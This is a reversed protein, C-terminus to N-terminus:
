SLRSSTVDELDLVAELHDFHGAIQPPEVRLQPIVTGRRRGASGAATPIASPKLIASQSTSPLLYYSITPSQHHNQHQTHHNIKSSVHNIM